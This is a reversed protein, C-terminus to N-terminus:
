RRIGPLASSFGSTVSSLRNGPQSEFNFDVVYLDSADGNSGGQENPPGCCSSPLCHVRSHKHASLKPSRECTNKNQWITDLNAQVPPKSGTKGGDKGGHCLSRAGRRLWTQFQYKPGADKRIGKEIEREESYPTEKNDLKIETTQSSLISMQRSNCIVALLICGKKFKNIKVSARRTEPPEEAWWWSCM